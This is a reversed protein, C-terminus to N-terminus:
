ALPNWKEEGLIKILASLFERAAIEVGLGFGETDGDGLADAEGAGIAVGDTSVLATAAILLVVIVQM